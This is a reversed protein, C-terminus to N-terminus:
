RTKSQNMVVDYNLKGVDFKLIPLIPSNACELTEMKSLLDPHFDHDWNGENNKSKRNNGNFRNDGEHLRKTCERVYCISDLSTPSEAHNLLVLTGDPLLVLCGKRNGPARGASFSRASKESVDRIFSCGPLETVIEMYERTLDLDVM